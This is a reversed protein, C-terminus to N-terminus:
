TEFSQQRTSLEQRVRRDSRRILGSIMLIIRDLLADCVRFRASALNGTQCAIDLLLRLETASGRAALLFRVFEKKSRRAAGEAINAPISIAARRIQSVLGFREQFPFKATDGYLDIALERSLAYVDLREHFPVLM